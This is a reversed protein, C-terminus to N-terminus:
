VTVYISTQVTPPMHLRQIQVFLGSHEDCRLKLFINLYVQTEFHEDTM